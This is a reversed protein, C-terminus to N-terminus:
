INSVRVVVNIYAQKLITPDETEPQTDVLTGLMEYSDHLAGSPDLFSACSVLQKLRDDILRRNGAPGVADDM